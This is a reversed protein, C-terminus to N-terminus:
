LKYTVGLTVFRQVPSKWTGSMRATGGLVPFSKDYDFSAFFREYGVEVFAGIHSTFFYRTGLMIGIGFGSPGKPELLDGFDGNLWGFGYGMKLMVFPDLNEIGFNPHWAARALIPIFGLGGSPAPLFPNSVSKIKAGSFGIELGVTLPFTLPLVYDVSVYGGFLAPNAYVVNQLGSEIKFTFGYMGIGFGGNILIDGSEISSPFGAPFASAATGFTLVVVLMGVMFCKNKM